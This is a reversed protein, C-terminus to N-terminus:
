IGFLEQLMDVKKRFDEVSCQLYMAATDASIFGQKYCAAVLGAFRGRRQDSTESIPFFDTTFNELAKQEDSPSSDLVQSPVDFNRYHSNAIHYRAATHSVGFTHMVNSVSQESIPAPALERVADNPALFAVAFANARQEVYDTDSATTEPNRRNDLYSDVQVNQLRTHPDYLLHGLEHALTARRIWVNQNEGVTNLIVGRAEGGDEDTTMVTAGAIWSPLRAQIVPIGLRSEVLDRMSRIPSQGLKLTYRAQRALDYGIRWAPRMSDGYDMHPDFEDSEMPLGLWRQLRLQVRIISAAEAFLITTGASITGELGTREGQLTRLRYALDSDGGAAPRFALLREDLGLVFAIRELTEVSSVRSSSSEAVSVDSKSVKAARGVSYHSLSLDKRRRELMRGTPEATSRLIASGYDLAEELIDMGFSTYAEWASMVRGTPNRWEVYEALEDESRVFSKTSRRAADEVSRSESGPGFIATLIDVDDIM